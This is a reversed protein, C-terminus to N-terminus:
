LSPRNLAFRFIWVCQWCFNHAIQLGSFFFLFQHLVCVDLIIRFDITIDVVIDFCILVFLIWNFALRNEKMKGMEDSSMVGIELLSSRMKCWNKQQLNCIPWCMIVSLYKGVSNIVSASFFIAFDQDNRRKPPRNRKEEVRKTRKNVNKAWKYDRDFNAYIHFCLKLVKRM